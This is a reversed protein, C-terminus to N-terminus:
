IWANTAPNYMLRGGLSSIEGIAMRPFHQRVYQAFEKPTSKEAAHQLYRLSWGDVLNTQADKAHHGFGIQGMWQCIDATHANPAPLKVRFSQRRGYDPMTAQPVHQHQYTQYTNPPPQNAIVPPMQQRVAVAAPAAQVPPPAQAAAPEAAKAEEAPGDSTLMSPPFRNKSGDAFQLMYWGNNLKNLVTGKKMGKRVYM